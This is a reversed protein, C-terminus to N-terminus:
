GRVLHKMFTSVKTNEGPPWCLGTYNVAVAHAPLSSCWCPESVAHQMCALHQKQYWCPCNCRRVNQEAWHDEHKRKGFFSFVHKSTKWNWAANRSFGAAPLMAKALPLHGCSHCLYLWLGCCSWSYKSPLDLSVNPGGKEPKFIGWIGKDGICLKLKKKKLKSTPWKRMAFLAKVYCLM